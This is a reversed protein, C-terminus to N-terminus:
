FDWAAFLSERVIREGELRWSKLRRYKKNRKPNILRRYKVDDSISRLNESKM